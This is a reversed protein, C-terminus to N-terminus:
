HGLDLWVGRALATRLLWGNGRLMRELGAKADAFVRLPLSGTELRHVILREPFQCDCDAPVILLDADSGPIAHARVLSGFLLALACRPWRTVM